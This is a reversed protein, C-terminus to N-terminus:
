GTGLGAEGVRVITESVPSTRAGISKKMHVDHTYGQAKIQVSQCVMAQTDGRNLSGTSSVM